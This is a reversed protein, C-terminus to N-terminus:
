ISDHISKLFKRGFASISYIGDDQAGLEENPKKTIIGGTELSDLGEIVENKSYNLESNIQEFELEDKMMLIELIEYTVENESHLNNIAIKVEQPIEINPM